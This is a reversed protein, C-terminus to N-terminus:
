ILVLTQGNRQITFTLRGAGALDNLVAAAQEASSFAIGNVGTIVDGPKLGISNAFDDTEPLTARFGIFREGDSEPRAGILDLLLVPQTLAIETLQAGGPLVDNPESVASPASAHSPHSAPLRDQLAPWSRSSNRSAAPDPARPAQEFWYQAAVLATMALLSSGIWIALQRGLGRATFAVSRTRGRTTARRKNKMNLVEAALFAVGPDYGAHRQFM